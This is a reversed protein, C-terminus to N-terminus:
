LEELAEKELRKIVESVAHKLTAACAVYDELDKGYPDEVNYGVSGTEGDLGAAYGKLTYLKGKADPFMAEMQEFSFSDMTFILTAWDVLERNVQKARHKELSLGMDEMVRVAYAASSGGEFAFTGASDVKVDGHLLDSESIMDELMAKAMPSRCTNGTCILLINKM